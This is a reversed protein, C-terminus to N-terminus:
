RGNQLDANPKERLVIKPKQALEGGLKGAISKGCQRAIPRFNRWSSKWGSELEPPLFYL